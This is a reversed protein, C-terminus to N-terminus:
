PVPVACEYLEVAESSGWAVGFHGNAHTSTALLTNGGANCKADFRGLDDVGEDFFHVSLHHSAGSAPVYPVALCNTGCRSASWAAPSDVQLDVPAPTEASLSTDYPMGKVALGHITLDAAGEYAYAILLTAGSSAAASDWFNYYEEPGWRTGQANGDDSLLTYAAWEGKSNWGTATYRFGEPGTGVRHLAAVGESGPELASGEHIRAFSTPCHTASQAVYMDYVTVPRLAVAVGGGASVAVSIGNMPFPMAARTLEGSSTACLYDVGGDTLNELWGAAWFAGEGAVSAAALGAGGDASFLLYPAGGDFPYATVELRAPNKYGLLFLYEGDDSSLQSASTYGGAAGTALLTCELRKATSGACPAGADPATHGGNPTTPGGDITGGDAGSSAGADGCPIARCYTEFARDFDLCAPLAAMTMCLIFPTRL